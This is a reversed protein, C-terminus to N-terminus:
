QATGHAELEALVKSAPLAKALVIDRIALIDNLPVVPITAQPFPSDSAVAVISPDAIHLPPTGNAARFVELKPHSLTKFGEVLVLDCPSLRKVLDALNLEAEGKALERILAFRRSSSVVVESAGAQRHLHSDKGPRDLDFDHHAHKITAIRLGRAVLAPILKTLLTTKGSGSWGAIGLLNMIPGDAGTAGRANM